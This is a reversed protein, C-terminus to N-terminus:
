SHGTPAMLPDANSVAAGARWGADEYARLTQRVLRDLGFEAEAKRRGAAGMAACRERDGALLAMRDVLAAHDGSPVVFGTHGDVVLARVDGVDTAVV